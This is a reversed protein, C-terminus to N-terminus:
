GGYYEDGIILTMGDHTNKVEYQPIKEIEVNDTMIKLATELEQEQYVKPTLTYAGEYTEAIDGIIKMNAVPIWAGEWQYKMVAM